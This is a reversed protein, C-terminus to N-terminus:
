RKLDELAQLYDERGIEGKAYREKLLEEPTKGGSAGDNGSQQSAGAKVFVYVLAGIVIPWILMMWGMHWGGDWGNYWHM